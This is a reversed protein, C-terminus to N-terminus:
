ESTPTQDVPTSLLPTLWGRADPFNKILSTIIANTIANLEELNLTSEQNYNNTVFDGIIPAIKPLHDLQSKLVSILSELTAKLDAEDIELRIDDPTELHTLNANLTKILGNLNSEDISLNEIVSDNIEKTFIGLDNELQIIFSLNNLLFIICVNVATYGNLYELSLDTIEFVQKQNM